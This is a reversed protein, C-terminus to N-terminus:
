IFVFGFLFEDDPKIYNDQRRSLTSAFFFDKKGPFSHSHIYSVVKFIRLFRVVECQMLSFSVSDVIYHDCSPKTNKRNPLGHRMHAYKTRGDNPWIKTRYGMAMWIRHCRWRFLQVVAHWLYVIKWRRRCSSVSRTWFSISTCPHTSSNWNQRKARIIRGVTCLGPPSSIISDRLISNFNHHFMQIPSQITGKSSQRHWKCEMSGPLTRWISYPWWVTSRYVKTWICHWIWYWKACRFNPLTNLM